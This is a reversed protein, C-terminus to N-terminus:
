QALFIGCEKNEKFKNLRIPLTLLMNEFRLFLKHSLKGVYNGYLRMNHVLNCLRKQTTM